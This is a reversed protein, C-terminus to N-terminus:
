LTNTIFIQAYEGKATKTRTNNKGQHEKGHDSTKQEKHQTKNREQEKESELNSKSKPHYARTSWPKAQAERDAMVTKNEHKPDKRRSM